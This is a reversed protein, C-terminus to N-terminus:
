TLRSKFSAENKVIYLVTSELGAKVAIFNINQDRDSPVRQKESSESDLHSPIHNIIVNLIGLM